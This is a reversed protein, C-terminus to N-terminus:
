CTLPSPKTAAFGLQTVAAILLTAISLQLRQANSEFRSHFVTWENSGSRAHQDISTKLGSCLDCIDTVLDLVDPGLDLSDPVQDLSVLLTKAALVQDLLRKQSYPLGKLTDSLKTVVEIASSISDTM